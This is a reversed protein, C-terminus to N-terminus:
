ISVGLGRALAYAANRHALHQAATPVFNYLGGLFGQRNTATADGYQMLDPTGTGGTSATVALSGEDYGYQTTGSVHGSQFHPAISATAPYNVTTTGGLSMQAGAANRMRRKHNGNASRHDFANATSGTGTVFFFDGYATRSAGEAAAGGTSMNYTNTLTKAAGFTYGGGASNLATWTPAGVETGDYNTATTPSPALSLPAANQYPGGMLHQYIIGALISADSLTFLYTDIPAEYISGVLTRPTGLAAWRVSLATTEPMIVPTITTGLDASIWTSTPTSGQATYLKNDGTNLAVAGIRKLFTNAPSAKRKLALDSCEIIRM